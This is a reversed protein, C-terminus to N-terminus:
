PGRGPHQELLVSTSRSRRDAGHPQCAPPHAQSVGQGCELARWRESTSRSTAVGQNDAPTSTTSAPRDRKARRCRPFCRPDALQLRQRECAVSAATAMGHHEVPAPSTTKAQGQVAAARGDWAWGANGERPGATTTPRGPWAHLDHRQDLFLWGAGQRTPLGTRAGCAQSRRPRSAGTLARTVSASLSLRRPHSDLSLQRPWRSGAAVRPLFPRRVFSQGAPLRSSRGRRGRLRLVSDASPM